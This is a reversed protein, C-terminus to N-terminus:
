GLLGGGLFIRRGVQHIFGPRESGIRRDYENMAEIRNAATVYEGTDVDIIIVTGVALQDIEGRKKELWCEGATAIAESRARSRSLEEETITTM